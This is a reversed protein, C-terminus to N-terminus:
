GHDDERQFTRLNKRFFMEVELQTSRLHVCPVAAGTNAVHGAVPVGLHSVFLQQDVLLLIIIVIIMDQFSSTVIIIAVM